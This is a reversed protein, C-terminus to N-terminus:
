AILFPRSAGCALGALRSSSEGVYFCGDERRVVYVCACGVTRPPPDQGKRVYHVQLLECGSSGPGEAAAAAAAAIEAAASGSSGSAATWDCPDAGGAGGAAAVVPRAAHGSNPEQTRLLNALVQAATRQLVEGAEQLSQLGDSSSGSGNQDAATAAAAGAAAAAAAQNSGGKGEEQAAGEQLQRHKSGPLDQTYTVVQMGHYLEAARRLVPAPVECTRAVELALSERCSGPVM